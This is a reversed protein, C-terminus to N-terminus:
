FLIDKDVKELKSIYFKLHLQEMGKPLNLKYIVDNIRKKFLHIPFNDMCGGDIFYKGNYLVPSFLIPICSSMRLALKVSMNPFNEHSIYYVQKENICVATVILTKQTKNYIYINTDNIQLSSFNQM